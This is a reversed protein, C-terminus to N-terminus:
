ARKRCWFYWAAALGLLAAAPTEAEPVFYTVRLTTELQYFQLGLNPFVKPQNVFTGPADLGQDSINHFGGLPDTVIFGNATAPLTGGGQYEALDVRATLTFTNGQADTGNVGFPQLATGPTTQGTLIAVPDLATQTGVSGPLGLTFDSRVQLDFLQNVLLSSITGTYVLRNTVELKVCQLDAPLGAWQQINWLQNITPLAAPGAGTLPTTFTFNQVMTSSTVVDARAAAVMVALGLLTGAAKVHKNTNM